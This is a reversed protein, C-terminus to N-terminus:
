PPSPVNTGDSDVASKTAESAVGRLIRIMTLAPPGVSATMSSSASRTSGPSMMMSPPLAWNASVRRRCAARAWRPIWKTPQPTDPPSSPANFPGDIM